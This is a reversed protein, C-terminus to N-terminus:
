PAANEHSSPSKHSFMASAKPFCSTFSILSTHFSRCKSLLVLEKSRHKERQRKSCQYKRLSPFCNHNHYLGWKEKSIKKTVELFCFNPRGM